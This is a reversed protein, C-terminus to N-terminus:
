SVDFGDFSEVGAQHALADLQECIAFLTLETHAATHRARLWLLQPIIIRPNPATISVVEYGLQRLAPALRELKARDHDCFYFDWRQPGDLGNAAFFEAIARKEIM